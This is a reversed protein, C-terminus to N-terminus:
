PGGITPKSSAVALAADPDSSGRMCLVGAVVTWVLCPALFLGRPLFRDAESWFESELLMTAAVGAIAFGAIAFRGSRGRPMAFGTAVMTAAAIGCLFASYLVFLKVGYGLFVNRYWPEGVIAYLIYLMAALAVLVGPISVAVAIGVAIRRPLTM